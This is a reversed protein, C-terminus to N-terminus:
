RVDRMRKMLHAMAKQIHQKAASASIGLAEGIAEQTLNEIRYLIFIARTREPLDDLHRILADLAARGAAIRHPDLPDIGLGDLNLQSDRWDARVRARRARDTLLNAAIQFVYSEPSVGITESSGLMRLFVQQTLDEAEAHDRVRRLFFAM